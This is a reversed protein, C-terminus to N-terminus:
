KHNDNYQNTMTFIIISLLAIVIITIGIIIIPIMRGSTDNNSREHDSHIMVRCAFGAHRKAQGELRLRKTYCEITYDYLMAYYLITYYIM